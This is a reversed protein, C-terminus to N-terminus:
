RPIQLMLIFILLEIQMCDALTERMWSFGEGLL